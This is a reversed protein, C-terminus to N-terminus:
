TKAKRSPHAAAKSAGARCVNTVCSTSGASSVLATPSLEVEKLAARMTPGAIAPRTM